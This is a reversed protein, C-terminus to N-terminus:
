KIVKIEQNNYYTYYVLQNNEVRIYMAEMTNNTQAQLQNYIDEIKYDLNLKIDTVKNGNTYSLVEKDMKKGLVLAYSNYEELVEQDINLKNFIAELTDKNEINGMRVYVKDFQVSTVTEIFYLYANDQPVAGSEEDYYESSNESEGKNLADKSPAFAKKAGFTNFVVPIAILVIVIVSLSLALAKIWNNKKIPKQNMDYNIKSRILHYKENLDISADVNENLLEIIKDEKNM